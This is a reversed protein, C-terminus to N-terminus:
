TLMNNLYALPSILFVFGSHQWQYVWQSSHLSLQPRSFSFFQLIPYKREPILLVGTLCLQLPEKSNQM